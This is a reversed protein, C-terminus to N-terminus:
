RQGRSPHNKGGPSYSCWSGVRPSVGLGLLDPWGVRLLSLAGGVIQPPLPRPHLGSVVLCPPPGHFLQPPECAIRTSVRRAVVHLWSYDECYVAKGRREGHFWHSGTVVVRVM